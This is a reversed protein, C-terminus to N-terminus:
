NVDVVGLDNVTISHSAGQGTITYSLPSDPEGTVAAFVVEGTSIGLSTPVAFTLDFAQDRDAYSSGKFAIMESNTVAVGWLSSEKGSISNLRATNLLWVLENSKNELHNNVLFRQGVTVVSVGLIATLAVVLLIEILSFGQQSRITSPLHM